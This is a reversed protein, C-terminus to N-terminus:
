CWAIFIFNVSQPVLRVAPDTTVMLAAIASFVLGAWLVSLRWATRAMMGTRVRTACLDLLVRTVIVNAMVSPAMVVRVM